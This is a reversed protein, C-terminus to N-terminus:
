RSQATRRRRAGIGVLILGTGLFALALDVGAQTNGGTDPLEEVAARPAPAPAPAAPAPAPSEEGAAEPLPRPRVPGAPVHGRDRVPRFRVVTPRVVTYNDDPRLDPTGSDVDFRCVAQGPRAEPRAHFVVHFTRSEYVALNGIQCTFAASQLACGQGSAPVVQGDAGPARVVVGTATSPGRNEVTFTYTIKGGPQVQGPGTSTVVLDSAPSVSTAPFSGYATGDSWKVTVNGTIPTDTRVHEWVRTTIVGGYTGGGPLSGISCLVRPGQMSCDKGGSVYELGYPLPAVFVVGDTRDPGPNTISYPWDYTRGPILPGEPGGMDLRIEPRRVEAPRAARRKKRAKEAKAPRAPRVLSKPRDDPRWRPQVPVPQGDAARAPAPLVPAFGAVALASVLTVAGTSLRFSHIM